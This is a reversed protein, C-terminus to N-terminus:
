NETGEIRLTSGKSGQKVVIRETISEELRSVHSIIGVLHNGGDSLNNLVQVAKDLTEDDLTGFGEDIFLTDLSQGGSHSQVVDSLGLALALSVIFSEGGSLSASERQLGTRSSEVEIDLGAKANKRYAEAQHVLQYIGGSMVDLRINAKEIVERFTAGMVYRDFSLKGGESNSGMALDSLRSLMKYANDSKSLATKAAKVNNYVNTHNTLLNNCDNRADQASRLQDKAADIQGTLVSLDTKKYDKTQEKQEKVQSRATELNIKYDDIVKKEQKLWREPDKIDRIVDEAQQVSDYSYIKLVATLADEAQRSQAETDPVKATETDLAGKTTNYQKQANDNRIRNKEIQQILSDKQTELDRIANKAKSSSDYPLQALRRAYDEKWTNWENTEKEIGASLTNQDGILKLQTNQDKQIQNQLVRYRKEDDNAKKLAKKTDQVATRLETEKQKLYMGDTLADWDACDSFLKQAAKLAEKQELRIRDDLKQLEGQILQYAEFKKDHDEKAQNVEEQTPVGKELHAFHVEQGRIFRTRCVPCDAEGKEDLDRRMQEALLGSQGAFFRQYKDNYSSLAKSLAEQARTCDAKKKDLKEQLGLVLDVRKVVGHEGTLEELMDTNKDLVAQNQLKREGADKLSESEKNASELRMKLTELATNTDRLKQADDKLKTERTRIEKAKVDLEAYVPLIDKLSSIKGTIQDAQKQTEADNKVIAETEEKATKRVVLEKELQKIHSNLDDLRKVATNRSDRVPLINRYVTEASQLFEQKKQYIDKQQELTNLRSCSDELAQLQKNQEAATGLATNLQNLAESKKLVDEGLESLKNREDQILKELNSLLHPSDSLWDEEAYGEPIVFIQEMQTRVTQQHDKREASIQDASAKFLEQYRLYASNDFLKGLIVSKEDSNSKLFKKFEGQALMVIQRFQDKNLGLIETIRETVKTAGETTKGDPEVLIGNISSKNYEDKTGRKKMFHLTRKVEYQKGSQEFVLIVSTDVDKGVYDCHMMEMTREDGSSAGYLAFVIADFITTKGAGTDGTILFTGSKFKMFNVKTEEPYSGFAKMVLTIPKM